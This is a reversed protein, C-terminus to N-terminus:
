LVARTFPSMGEQGGRPGWLMHGGAVSRGATGLWLWWTKCYFSYGGCSHFIGWPSSWPWPQEPWQLGPRMREKKWAYERHLWTVYCEGLVESLVMVQKRYIDWVCSTALLLSSSSVLEEWTSTFIKIDVHYLATGKLCRKAALYFLCMIVSRKMELSISM